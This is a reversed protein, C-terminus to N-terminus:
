NRELRASVILGDEPLVIYLLNRVRDIAFLGAGNLNLEVQERAKGTDADLVLLWNRGNSAPPLMLWLERDYVRAGVVARPLPVRAPNTEVSARGLYDRRAASVVSDPLAVSWKLQGNRDFHQITGEAQLILWTDGSDGLVPLVNNRFELPIEGRMAQQQLGRLNIQSPPSVVPTGIRKLSRASDSIVVALSSDLGMTPAALEGRLNISLPVMVARNLVFQGSAAGDLKFFQVRSNGADVVLVMSDSVSIAEPRLLEGPGSGKRGFTNQRGGDPAISVLNSNGRDVIWLTGDPAVALDSVVAIASTAATTITDFRDITARSGIHDRSENGCAVLLFASFIWPLGHKVFQRLSAALRTRARNSCCWAMGTKQGM